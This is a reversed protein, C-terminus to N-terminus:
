GFKKVENVNILSKSLRLFHHETLLFSHFAHKLQYSALTQTREPTEYIDCDMYLVSNILKLTFATLGYM